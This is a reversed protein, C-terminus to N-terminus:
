LALGHPCSSYSIKGPFYPRSLHPHPSSLRHPSSPFDPWSYSHSSLLMQRFRTLLLRLSGRSKTYTNCRFSNLDNPIFVQLLTSELRNLLICTNNSPLSTFTPSPPALRQVPSRSSFPHGYGPHKASLTRFRNFICSITNPSTCLLASSHSRFPTLVHLPAIFGAPRSTAALFSVLSPISLFFPRRSIM